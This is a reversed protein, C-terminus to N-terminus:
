YWTENAQECFQESTKSSKENSEGRCSENKVNTLIHFHLRHPFRKRGINRLLIIHLKIITRTQRKM